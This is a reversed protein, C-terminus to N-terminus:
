SSTPRSSTATCCAASTPMSCAGRGAPGGVLRDGQPLDASGPREAGGITAPRRRAPAPRARRRARGRLARGRRGARGPGAGPDAPRLVAHLASPARAGPRHSLLPGPRHPHAAVAGPDAARAHRPPHGQARRASRGTPAGRRPLRPRLLRPGTGRGAPLRRHDPGVRPLDMRRGARASPPRHQPVRRRPWSDRHDRALRDAIAPFRAEYEAPDPVEGAEERLCYEEYILAM